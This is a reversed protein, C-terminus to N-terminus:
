SFLLFIFFFNFIIIQFFLINGTMAPVPPNKQKGKPNETTKKSKRKTKNIFFSNEKSKSNETKFVTKTTELIRYTKLSCYEVSYQQLPGIADYL